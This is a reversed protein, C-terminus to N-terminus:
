GLNAFEDKNYLYLTTNIKHKSAVRTLKHVQEEINDVQDDTIVIFDNLIIDFQVKSDNNFLKGLHWILIMTLWM